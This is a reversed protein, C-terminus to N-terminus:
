RVRTSVTNHICYIGETFEVIGQNLIRGDWETVDDDWDSPGRGRFDVPCCIAM